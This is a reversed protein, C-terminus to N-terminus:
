GDTNDARGGAALEEARRMEAIQGKLKTRETGLRQNVERWKAADGRLAALEARAADHAGSTLVPGSVVFDLWSDCGEPPELLTSMTRAEAVRARVLFLEIAARGYYGSGMSGYVSPLLLIPFPVWQSTSRPCRKETVAFGLGVLADRLAVRAGCEDISLLTVAKETAM